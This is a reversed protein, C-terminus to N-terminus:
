SIYSAQRQRMYSSSIDLENRYKAVTRRALKIGREALKAAIASDSLNFGGEGETILERIVEKVAAKSLDAANEKSISNTFFRRIEFIGWSTEVYKGSAARSITAEHLNLKKAVTKLTLPVLYKPGKKFFEHQYYVIARVVRFITKKRKNLANIFWQAEKYCSRITKGEESELFEAPVDLVGLVPIEDNNLRIKFENDRQIVQIEPIIFRTGSVNGMGSSFQRGPFPALGKLAEFIEKLEEPDKKTRRSVLSFNGKELDELYPMILAIEDKMDEGYKMAAQVLLAEKYDSTACGPPDLSRVVSLAEDIEKKTFNRLLTDLSQTSQGPQLRGNSDNANNSDNATEKDNAGNATGENPFGGSSHFGDSQLNQIILEGAKRVNESVPELYLQWLLHEQLTEPRSLADRIFNNHSDAIAASAGGKFDRIVSSDKKRRLIELSITSKDRLVELAPNKELEEEIRARLDTLPLEMLQVSQILQPSLKQRLSLEQVLRM